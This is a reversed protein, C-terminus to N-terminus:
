PLLDLFDQYGDPTLIIVSKNDANDLDAKSSGYYWVGEAAEYKKYEFFFRDAIREKFEKDSIFHYTTDQKENERMPRTTYTVIKKYGHELVLKNLISDKGSATKGLLILIENEEKRKINVIM